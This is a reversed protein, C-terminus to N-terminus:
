KYSYAFIDHILLFDNVTVAIQNRKNEETENGHYKFTHRVADSHIIVDYGSINIKTKLLIDKAYETDVSGLKIFEKYTLTNKSKEVFELLTM